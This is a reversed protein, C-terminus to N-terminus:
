NGASLTEFIQAGKTRIWCLLATCIVLLLATVMVFFVLPNVVDVILYYIGALVLVVAWGGFLAIMVSMSQKIPVIENTWTLNPMKLGLVLGIMAMMLIFLITVVAVFLSYYIELKLVFLVCGVLVAAPILTLIAHMKLKAMLVQYGSVPLAQLLWINKGELSVSPATIDNMSTTMAIAAAAMLAMVGEWQAPMSSMVGTIADSKCIVAVAAVLMLVIGLGCNLMYNPSKLFRCFEKGLLAQGVSRVATKKEKYEAKAGGKNITVIKLYSKSLVLCVVGFLVLILAAFVLLSMGDGTAAQGMYYPFSFKGELFSGAKQPNAAIDQLLQSAKGYLYFYAAMFGLSLVVTLLSKYKSASSIWAVAWGLVASLVLIFISILLTVAVSGVVAAIDPSAVIYYKILAPIMVLLEYMLGMAYVGSLRVFLIRSPKVPMALLLDNDKALYLSSYTNFISGFAGLAIGVLGMLAFYMWDMGASVLPVCLFDAVFWSILSITGVLLVVYFILFLVFQIGKRNRNKKKDQWFFSFLEMLQKKILTKTM